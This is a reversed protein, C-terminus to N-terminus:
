NSTEDPMTYTYNPKDEDESEDNKTKFNMIFVQGKKIELEKGKSIFSLPTSKYVSIIASKARNGNENKAIGKILAVGPGIFGSIFHSSAMVAGKEIISTAKVDSVPSYKGIYGDELNYIEKTLSDCYKFPVFNFTANRKLRKPNTIDTIKGTIVSGSNIIFGDETMYDEVIMLEWTESPNATSFDELAEVKINKAFSSQMFLFSLILIFILKKM